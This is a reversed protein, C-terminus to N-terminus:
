SLPLGDIFDMVFYPLGDATEGVDHVRVIRDHKVQALLRAEKRVRALAKDRPLDGLTTLFKIAVDRQLVLDRARFVRGMGGGGVYGEIRFRSIITGPVLESTVATWPATARLLDLTAAARRLEGALEPHAECARDLASKGEREYASIVEAVLASSDAAGTEAGSGADESVGM